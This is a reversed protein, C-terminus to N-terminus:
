NKPWFAIATNIAVMVESMSMQFNYDNLDDDLKGRLIEQLIDLQYKTLGSICATTGSHQVSGDVM